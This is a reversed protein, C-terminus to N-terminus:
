REWADFRFGVLSLQGTLAARVDLPACSLTHITESIDQAVNIGALGSDNLLRGLRRLQAVQVTVWNRGEDYGMGWVYVLWRVVDAAFRRALTYPEQQWRECYDVVCLADSDYRALHHTGRAATRTVYHTHRQPDYITGHWNHGRDILDAQGLQMAQWAHLVCVTWPVGMDDCIPVAVRQLRRLRIRTRTSM